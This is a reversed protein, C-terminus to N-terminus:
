GNEKMIDAIEIIKNDADAIDLQCTGAGKHGGGGYQSMLEGVNTNCNLNWCNTEQSM